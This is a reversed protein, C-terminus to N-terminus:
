ADKNKDIANLFDHGDKTIRFKISNKKEALGEDVLLDLHQEKKMIKKKLDEMLHCMYIFADMKPM